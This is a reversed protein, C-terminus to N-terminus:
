LFMRLFDVWRVIATDEYKKLKLLHRDGTVVTDAQAEVCM